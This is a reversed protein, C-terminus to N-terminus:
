LQVPFSLSLLYGKSEFDVGSTGPHSIGGFSQIETNNYKLEEYEANISLSAVRIGLGARWGRPDNFKVDFSQTGAAPDYSGTAIYTGWMRLGFKAGQLGMTPGVNYANGEASGYSSDAFKTRSSRGDAGLFFVENLHFGLRLGLGYGSSTGTTDDSILPLQSTKITSDLQSFMLIPEVFLGAPNNESKHQEKVETKSTNSTNAVVEGTNPDITNSTNVTNTSETRETKSDEALASTTLFLITVLSLIKHRFHNKM